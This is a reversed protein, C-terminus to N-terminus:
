FEKKKSIVVACGAAAMMAVVLGAIPMDGTNPNTNVPPESGPVAFEAAITNRLQLTDKYCGVAAYVDVKDGVKVTWADNADKDIVAKYIQIENTGDSVKINPQSYEGDKDYVETVTVNSLKVYTCLDATTLDAISVEKLALYGKSVKEYSGGLQPLGNYVSKKGTGIVLDGLNLDEVNASARVCIGGTKDQLYVNKGDILTVYGKVTFEEGDEGALAASIDVTTVEPKSEEPTNDQKNLSVLSVAFLGESGEAINYYASWYNKSDYWEMYAERAVNQIYYLGNGADVLKWSDNVAGFSMSTYKEAMGLKEGNQSISITGDGNNKITWVETSGYGSLTGNSMTVDVGSNYYSSEPYVSSLAKNFAPVYIVYEGDAITPATEAASAMVALGMVMALCLVISLIKTIKKM